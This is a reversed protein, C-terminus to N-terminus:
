LIDELGKKMKRHSAQPNLEQLSAEGQQSLAALGPLVRPLGNFQDTLEAHSYRYRLGPAWEDGVLQHLYLSVSKEEFDLSQSLTTPTDPIPLLTGNTLAGIGRKGDSRLVEGTLGFYTGSELSQNFSAHFTEFQSGSTLGAVGEPIISRYSQNFGALLSPELRVSNDFFLGGLSQTYAARFEGRKWPELTIGVKPSLLSQSANEHTIPALDTNIPSELHDYSFGGILRLRETVQWQYYAYANARTMDPSSQHRDVIGTLDRTLTSSQDVEGAQVRGGVILSHPAFTLMHQLEASYLTFTSDLTSDFNPSSEVRAPTGASQSLFLINPNTDNLHLNEELRAGLM